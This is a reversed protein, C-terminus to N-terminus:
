VNLYFQIQRRVSLIHEDEVISDPKRGLDDDVCCPLSVAHIEPNELEGCRILSQRVVEVSNKLSAHSHVFLLVIKRVPTEIELHTEEILNSYLKLRRITATKEKIYEWNEQMAPDVSHIQWQTMLAAYLGTRPYHGDGVCILCISPDRHNLQLGIRARDFVGITETIEKSNPYFGTGLLLPASKLCIFFDLYKLSPKPVILQLERNTEVWEFKM